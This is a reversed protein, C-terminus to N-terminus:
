GREGALESERRVEEREDIEAGLSRLVDLVLGVVVLYVGVDFFTSTVFKFEGLLPLQWKVMASQFVSGGFFLPAVGSLAAIGLGSGLLTGAGLPTAEALEARGGALYRLTLALGAMLGGAFGGGASNHGALLLYLSFIIMSHFLLRTVVEVIISRREPALTRGAVLWPDRGARAFRQAVALAAAGRDDGERVPRRGVSGAELSAARPLAAGRDRVFILSAVGTAAIALVSIEGFTDWARLDVLTVNVANLGGGIEYALRPFQLSIPADVRSGLAVLAVAMMTLGFAVGLVIRIARHSGQTRSRLEPPLARMALVFAVLIISEVFMQTLALDPAGQFAFILAIGYGTVSVMLVALFRKNARASAVAGIVIVIAAVPQAPTNPDLLYLGPMPRGPGLAAVLDVVIATSLIVALYFFLSGRQTRGTIWIATNDLGGILARYIKEADILPYLRSQLRAVLVRGWFLLLGLGLTLVSLALAPGLMLVALHPASHGADVTGHGEAFLQAYPLAWDQVPLPWLGYLVTLVALVAPAALFEAPVKRFPTPALFHPKGTAVSKKIGSRKGGRSRVPAEHVPKLKRAFGGWLFRASYAVTLVSGAVVGILLWLYGTGGDHAAEQAQILGEFVSEKAVFGGTFPVASMSAVGVAAVVALAPASRFVGSLIRIDRTGAQHDIIGVVLFLTAKFLGHALVLALGALALAETGQGLVLTMFGLQSVTGYALILKLDHQRLARWGGVLMTVLGLTTVMPLWFATHAFAPAFLAVLYIGAKVMAAAHLYASVPTPAAMAGPLWFHFPVLASKSFAGILILVMAVDIATGTPPHAMLESIRYSGGHQALMLLGVLMVLGGFTTVILAQLAARRAAIRTRSYGVLLYSLVTTLEWFIFLLILDDAVVLGFMVGAFALLQAGFGAGQSLFAADDPRFYRACYALVLAGIGLVLLSMVWSLPTMRVALQLGFDPIWEVVQSPPSTSFAAERQTLLWFFSGLPVAALVYFGNRGLGPLRGIGRFFVPAALAVVFHLALVPLM